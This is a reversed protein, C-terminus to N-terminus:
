HNSQRDFTLSPRYKRAFCGRRRRFYIVPVGENRVANTIRQVAPLFLEKYLELPVVGLHTDFLEFAQIGARVQEVAYHIAM